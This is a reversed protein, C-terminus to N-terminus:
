VWVGKWVLGHTVHKLRLNETKSGTVLAHNWRFVFSTDQYRKNTMKDGLHEWVQFNEALTSITLFSVEPYLLTLLSSFNWETNSNWLGKSWVPNGPQVCVPIERSTLACL